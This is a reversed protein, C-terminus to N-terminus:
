KNFELRITKKLGANLDFAPHWGLQTMREINALCHMAENARYPLAGFLLETNSATLRHATEVFERITPAVGSGVEIDQVADLQHCQTLLTDYASVVDDIYIFDRAQEGATLKLVLENRHCAHLVHTTFKSADDGPGYMHHLLVNIFRLKGDSQTALIRGWQAFQHKSLAYPSVEPELASGTNLFSVPKVAHQLAQLIVLGLRLNADFLQLSTEGQRGYACATHVVVEPQVRRVFADVEADTTCRAIDYSAELGRLRHLQSTPRLLLAVQHGTDLWHRALASGLFGSAGTLLIKM